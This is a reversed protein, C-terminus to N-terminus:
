AKEQPNKAAGAVKISDARWKDDLNLKTIM